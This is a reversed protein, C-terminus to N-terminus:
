TLFVMHREKHVARAEAVTQCTRHRIECRRFKGRQAIHEIDAPRLDAREATLRDYERFARHRLMKQRDDLLM